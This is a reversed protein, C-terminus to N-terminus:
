EEPAADDAADTEPSERGDAARAASGTGDGRGPAAGDPAVASCDTSWVEGTWERKFLRYASALNVLVDRKEAGDTM